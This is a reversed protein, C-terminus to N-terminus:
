IMLNNFMEQRSITPPNLFKVPHWYSPTWSEEEYVEIPFGGPNHALIGTFSKRAESFENSETIEIISGVLRRNVTSKFLAYTADKWDTLEMTGIVTEFLDGLKANGHRPYETHYNYCTM